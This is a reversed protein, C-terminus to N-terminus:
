VILMDMCDFDVLNDLRMPRSMLNIDYRGRPTQLRAVPRASKLSAAIDAFLDLITKFM